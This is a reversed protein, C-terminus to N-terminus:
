CRFFASNPIDSHIPLVALFRDVFGGFNGKFIGGGAFSYGFSLRVFYPSFESALYARTVRWDLRASDLVYSFAVIAVNAVKSLLVFFRFLWNM